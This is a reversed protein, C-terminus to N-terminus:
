LNVITEQQMAPEFAQELLDKQVGAAYIKGGFTHIVISTILLVFTFFM